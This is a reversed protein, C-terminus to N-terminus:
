PGTPPITTPASPGPISTAPTTPAPDSSPPATVITAGNSTDPTPPLTSSPTPAPQVGAIPDELLTWLILEGKVSVDGNYISAAEGPAISTIELKDFTAIFQQSTVLTTLFNSSAAFSGTPAFEFRFGQLVFLVFEARGDQAANDVKDVRVLGGEAFSM